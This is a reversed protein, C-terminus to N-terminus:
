QEFFGPDVVVEDDNEIPPLSGRLVADAVEQFFQTDVVQVLNENRRLAELTIAGANSVRSNFSVANDVAWRLMRMSEERQRWVEVQDTARDTINASATAADASQRAADASTQAANASAKGSKRVLLASILAVASAVLSGAFVLWTGGSIGGSGGSSAVTTTPDAGMAVFHWWGTTM